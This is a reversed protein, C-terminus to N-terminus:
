YLHDLLHDLLKLISCDITSTFYLKWRRSHGPRNPGRGSASIWSLSFSAQDHRKQLQAVRALKVQALPQDQAAELQTVAAPFDGLRTHVEAARICGRKYSADAQVM